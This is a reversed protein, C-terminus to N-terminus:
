MPANIRVTEQITTRLTVGAPITVEDGRTALLAVGAKGMSDTFLVKKKNTAM